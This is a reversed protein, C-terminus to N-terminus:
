SRFNFLPWRSYAASGTGLEGEEDNGQVAKLRKKFDKGLCILFVNKPHKLKSTSSIL